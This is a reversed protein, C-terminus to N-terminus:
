SFQFIKPQLVTVIHIMFCLASAKSVSLALGFAHNNYTCISKNVQIHIAVTEVTIIKYKNWYIFLYIFNIGLCLINKNFKLEYRFFYVAHGFSVLGHLFTSFSSPFRHSASTASSSESTTTTSSPILGVFFINQNHM